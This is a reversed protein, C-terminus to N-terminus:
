SELLPLAENRLCSLYLMKFFHLTGDGRCQVHRSSQCCLTGGGAIEARFVHGWSTCVAPVHLLLTRLDVRRLVQGLVDYPLQGWDQAARWRRLRM